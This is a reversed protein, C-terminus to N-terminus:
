SDERREFLYNWVELHLDVKHSGWRWCGSSELALDLQPDFAHRLLTDRRELYRRDHRSGHYLSRLTQDAFGVRGRVARAWERSWALYHEVYKPAAGVPGCRPCPPRTSALISHAWDSGEVGVTSAAFILKDGGGVVAADYLGVQALVESRAAWGLGSYGFPLGRRHRLSPLRPSQEVVEGTLRM